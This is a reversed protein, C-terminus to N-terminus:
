HGQFYVLDMASLSMGMVGVAYVTQRWGCKKKEMRQNKIREAEEAMINGSSQIPLAEYLRGM